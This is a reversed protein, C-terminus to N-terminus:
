SHAAPAPPQVRPVRPATAPRDLFGAALFLLALVTLPVVVAGTSTGLLDRMAPGEVSSETFFRIVVLTFPLAADALLLEAARMPRRLGLVAIPLALVLAIIPVSPLEIDVFLTIAAWATFVVLAAVLVMLAVPESRAALLSLGVIPGLVAAAILVATWGGPDEFAYGLAFLVGGLVFLSTLAVATRRLITALSM